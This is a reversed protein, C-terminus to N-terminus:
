VFCVFQTFDDFFDVTCTGRVKCGSGNVDDRDRNEWGMLVQRSEDSNRLCVLYEGSSSV